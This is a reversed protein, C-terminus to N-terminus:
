NAYLFWIVRAVDDSSTLSFVHGAHRYAQQELVCLKKMMILKQTELETDSIGSFTCLVVCSTLIKLM